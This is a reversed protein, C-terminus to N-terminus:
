VRRHNEPVLNLLLQIGKGRPIVEKLGGTKMALDPLPTWISEDEV